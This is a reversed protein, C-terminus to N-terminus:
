FVFYGGIDVFISLSVSSFTNESLALSLFLFGKGDHNYYVIIFISKHRRITIFVFYIISRRILKIMMMMMMM